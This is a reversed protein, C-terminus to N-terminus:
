LQEVFDLADAKLYDSLSFSLFLSSLALSSREWSRSACNSCKMKKKKLSENLAYHWQDNTTTMMM